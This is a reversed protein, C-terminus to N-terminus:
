SELKLQPVVLRRHYDADWVGDFVFRYVYVMLDDCCVLVDAVFYEDKEKFLFLIIYGDQRLHNPYKECFSIIQDQTLCLQDLDDTLSKFMESLLANQKIKFIQVKTEETKKSPHNLDWNKFNPDLCKKFYFVDGAQAITRQGNLAPLILEPTEVLSLIGNNKM